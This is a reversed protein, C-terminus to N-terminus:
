LVFILLRCWTQLHEVHARGSSSSESEFILSFLSNRSFHDTTRRSTRILQTVHQGRALICCFTSISMSSVCESVKLKFLINVLTCLMNVETWVFINRQTCVIRNRSCWFRLLYITFTYATHLSLIPQQTTSSKSTPNPTSILTFFISTM